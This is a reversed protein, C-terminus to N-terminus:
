TYVVFRDNDVFNHKIQVGHQDFKDLISRTTVGKWDWHADFLRVDDFIFICPHYNKKLIVDLEELLPVWKGNNGTDGGSQHSDIFFLTPVPIRQLEELTIVSDGLHYIINYIGAKSGAIRAEQYLLPMIEITHVVNFYKAVMRTTEGKYTGTEIFTKILARYEPYKNIISLLEEETLSGGM